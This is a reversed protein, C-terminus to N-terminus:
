TKNFCIKYLSVCPGYADEIKSFRCLIKVHNIHKSQLVFDCHQLVTATKYPVKTFM